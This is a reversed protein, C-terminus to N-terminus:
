EFYVFVSLIVIEGKEMKLGCFSVPFFHVNM